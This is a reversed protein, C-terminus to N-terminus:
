AISCNNRVKLKAGGVTKHIKAVGDGALTNLDEINSVIQDYNITPTVQVVPCGPYHLCDLVQLMYKSIKELQM